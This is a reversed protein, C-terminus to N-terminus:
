RYEIYWDDFQENFSDAFYNMLAVTMNKISRWASPKGNVVFRFEKMKYKGRECHSKRGCKLELIYWQPLKDLFFYM